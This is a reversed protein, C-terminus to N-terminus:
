INGYKKYYACLFPNWVDVPTLLNQLDEKSIYRLVQMPSFQTPKAENTCQIYLSLLGRQSCRFCTRFTGEVRRKSITTQSCSSCVTRLCTRCQWMTKRTFPAKCKDCTEIESTEM